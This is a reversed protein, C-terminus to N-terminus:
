AVWPKAPAPLTPEELPMGVRQMEEKVAMESAEIAREVLALAQRAQDQARLQEPFAKAIDRERLNDYIAKPVGSLEPPLEFAAMRFTPNDQLLKAKAAEDTVSRLYARIEARHALDAPSTKSYDYPQLDAEAIRVSIYVEDYRKKLEDLRKREDRALAQRVKPEPLAVDRGNAAVIMMNQADHRQAIKMTDAFDKYLKGLWSDPAHQDGHEWFGIPRTKGGDRTSVLAGGRGPLDRLAM